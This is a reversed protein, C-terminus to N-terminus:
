PGWDGLLNLVFLLPLTINHTNGTAATGHADVTSFAAMHVFYDASGGYKLDVQNGAAELVDAGASDYLGATDNGTGADAYVKEFYKVRNFFGTGWIASEIPTAYCADDGSSGFLWASDTGGAPTFTDVRDFYKVRNYFNTGALAAESANAYFTDDGTSDYLKATNTGVTAFADVRKFGVVRNTFTTGDSLSAADPAGIFLDNNLSGYLKAQDNGGGGGITIGATNSVTVTFSSSHLSAYTPAMLANEATPAGTLVATDNGAGGDFTATALQSQSFTYSVGNITLTQSTASVFEFADNGATGHVAVSTATHVVLNALALKVDHNTGTLEVYYTEGAAGALHDIRPKGDVVTSSALPAALPDLPDAFLRLGVSKAAGQFTAEATLLGARTTSLKYWTNGAGPNLNSLEKFDVVGQPDVVAITVTAVNTDAGAAKARYTFSDTGNFTAPPTYAFSGDANLTLTGNSAGTVLTASDTDVNTNNALVGNNKDVTLTQGKDVSYSHDAAVSALSYVERGNGDDADFLLTGGVNSLNRPDSSAGGPAINVVIVTGAATGDSQWLERGFIPTDASFFLTQNVDTLYLPDSNAGGPNIDKVLVTGADTGDSRWLERASIPEYASFFLTGNVETLCLPDAHAGGPNIDKVRVTGATTGDSKWLERGGTPEFATFFLTSGVATLQEPNSHAGGPNIDKVLSTGPATGDTKWLERGSTADETAFYVTGNIEAIKDEALDAPDVIGSLVLQPAVALLRRDELSEFRLRRGRAEHSAESRRSGPAGSSLVAM